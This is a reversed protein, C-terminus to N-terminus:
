QSSPEHMTQDKKQEYCYSEKSPSGQTMGTMKSAKLESREFHNSLSYVKPKINPKYQKHLAKTAENFETEKQVVEPDRDQM